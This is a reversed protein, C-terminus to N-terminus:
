KLRARLWASASKAAKDDTAALECEQPTKVGLWARRDNKGRLGWGYLPGIRRPAGLAKKLAAFSARVSHGGRLVAPEFDDVVWASTTTVHLEILMAGARAIDDDDLHEALARWSARTADARARALTPSTGRVAGGDSRWTWAARTEKVDIDASLEVGQARARQVHWEIAYAVDGHGREALQLLSARKLAVIADERTAARARLKPKTDSAAVWAGRTPKVEIIL